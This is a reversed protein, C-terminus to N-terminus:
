ASLSKIQEPVPVGEINFCDATKMYSQSSRFLTVGHIIILVESTYSHIDRNPVNKTKNRVKPLFMFVPRTIVAEENTHKVRVRFM